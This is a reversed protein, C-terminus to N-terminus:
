NLEHVGYNQKERQLIDVGKDISMNAHVLFSATRYLPIMNAAMPKSDMMTNRTTFTIETRYTSTNRKIKIHSKFTSSLHLNSM